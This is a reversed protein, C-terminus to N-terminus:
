PIVRRRPATRAQSLMSEVIKAPLSLAEAIETISAGEARLHRVWARRCVPPTPIKPLVESGM